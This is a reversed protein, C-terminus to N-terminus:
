TCIIHKVTNSQYVSAYKGDKTPTGDKKIKPGVYLCSPPGGLRSIDVKITEVKISDSNDFVLDGVKVPNNSLAYECALDYERKKADNRLALVAKKYDEINM